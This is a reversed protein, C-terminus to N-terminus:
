SLRKIISDAGMSLLKEALEIGLNEAEGVTGAIKDKLIVSGDTEAVLGVLQLRNKKTITAHAAIPVQCGGGLRALFAREAAVASATEPHHIKEVIQRIRHDDKRCEICVAGQGAAPLMIDYPIPHKLRTTYGLRKLGAAALIIADYQGNELKNIRTDINGRLPLIEIDSRYHLLQSSRRLSSTGIRASGPLTDINEATTSILVDSPDERAPISAICLGEPVQAPMDKLSHVALDISGELLAEEIEKVFLGKGGIRALPADLIRDGTTKIIRESISLDNFLEKLASAVWRAQWLALKSGRTGIVIKRSNM